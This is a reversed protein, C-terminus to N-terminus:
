ARVVSSSSSLYPALLARVDPPIITQALPTLKLPGIDIQTRPQLGSDSYPTSSQQSLFLALRATADVLFAPITDARVPYGDLTVLGFRPFVLAQSFKSAVGQWRLRSLWATAEAIYPEPTTVTTWASAFPNAALVTAVVAASAFANANALGSGDEVVLVLTM